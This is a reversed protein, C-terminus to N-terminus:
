WSTVPFRRTLSTLIASSSRNTIQWLGSPASRSAAIRARSSARSLSIISPVSLSVAVFRASSRPTM